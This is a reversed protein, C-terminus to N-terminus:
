VASPGNTEADRVAAFHKTFSLRGALITKAEKHLTITVKGTAPDVVCTDKGIKLGPDASQVSADAAACAHQVNHNGAFDSAGAIAAQGAVDALHLRTVLISGGDVLGVVVLAAVLLWVIALKGLLGREDHWRVV